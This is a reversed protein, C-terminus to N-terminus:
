RLPQAPAAVPVDTPTDDARDRSAILAAAVGILLWFTLDIPFIEFYSDVFAAVISALVFAAIGDLLARDSARARAAGRHISSFIGLLMLVFAWLGLIGLEYLTKFYYNDPQYRGAPALREAVAGASGIGVGLPHDQVQQINAQWGATRQGLSKSSLVASATPGGIALFAVLALPICALLIRYRRFGLYLFGAALGLISARVFASFMGLVYIPTALLFLRNRLRTTDDLAVPVGVLLVLMVFLAFPFPQDFTSFSKLFSGSFRIATNYQYGIQNLYVDGVVQQWLGVVACIFGVGMLISVLRDRERENLPARWVALALLIYYFNVKLGLVAQTGGITLASFLGLLLLFVLAPVWRPIQRHPEGRAARPGVFTAALAAGVIAEKWGKAWGPVSTLLLLGNFPALAAVLLVGRQPRYFIAVGIPVAVAIVLLLAAQGALAAALVAAIGVVLVALPGRDRLTSPWPM